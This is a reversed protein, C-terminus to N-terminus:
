FDEQRIHSADWQVFCNFQINLKDMLCPSLMEFQVTYDTNSFSLKQNIIEIFM